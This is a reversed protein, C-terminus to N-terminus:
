QRSPISLRGWAEKEFFLEKSQPELNEVGGQSVSVGQDFVRGKQVLFTKTIFEGLSPLDPRKLLQFSCCPLMGLTAQCPGQLYFSGVWGGAEPVRM